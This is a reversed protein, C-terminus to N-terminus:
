AAPVTNPMPLSLQREPLSRLFAALDETLVITARGNKRARLRGAAIAQYLRTRGVGSVAAAEEISYALREM